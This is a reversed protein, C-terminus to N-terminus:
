WRGDEVDDSHKDNAEWDPIGLGRFLEIVEMLEDRTTAAQFAIDVQQERELLAAEQRELDRIQAPIGAARGQAMGLREEAAESEAPILYESNIIAEHKKVGKPSSHKFTMTWAAYGDSVGKVGLNAPDAFRLQKGRYSTAQGVYGLPTITAPARKKEGVEESWEM